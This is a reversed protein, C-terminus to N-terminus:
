PKAVNLGSQSAWDVIVDSKTDYNFVHWGEGDIWSAGVAPFLPDSAFDNSKYFIADAHTTLYERKAAAMQEPSLYPKGGQKSILDETTYGPMVVLYKIVNEHEGTVTITSLGFKCEGLSPIEVNHLSHSVYSVGNIVAETQCAPSFATASCTVVTSLSSLPKATNTWTLVTRFQDKQLLPSLVFWMCGAGNTADWTAVLKRMTIYGPASVEAEFTGVKINDVHFHGDASTSMSASPETTGVALLRRGGRPALITVNAGSLPKGTVADYVWGNGIGGFSSPALTPTSTTTPALTTPAHTAYPGLKFRSTGNFQFVKWGQHDVLVSPGVAFQQGADNSLYINVTAGSKLLYDKADAEHPAPVDATCPASM